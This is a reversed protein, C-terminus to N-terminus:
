CVACLMPCHNEVSHRPVRTHRSSISSTGGFIPKETKKDTSLTGCNLNPLNSCFKIQELPIGYVRFPQFVSAYLTFTQCLMWFHISYNSVTKNTFSFVGFEILRVNTNEALPYAFNSGLKSTHKSMTRLLESKPFLWWAVGCSIEHKM